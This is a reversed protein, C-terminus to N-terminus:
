SLTQYLQQIAEWREEPRMLSTPPTHSIFRGFLDEFWQSAAGLPEALVLRYVYAAQEHDGRDALILAWVALPYNPSSLLGRIETVITMASLIHSQAKELDGLRYAILAQLGIGQALEDLQDISRLYDTGIELYNATASNDERTAATMGLAILALGKSRKHGLERSLAVAKKAEEIAREYAGAHVSTYATLALLVTYGLHRIGLEEFLAGAEAYQGHADAFRGLELWGSGLNEMAGALAPRDGIQNFLDVAQELYHCSLALEGRHMLVLGLRDLSSAEGRRDGIRRRLALSEEFYKQAKDYAGVNWCVTGLQNLANAQGWEDNISEYLGLAQEGHVLAAKRDGTDLMLEEVTLHYLALVPRLAPSPPIGALLRQIDALFADVPRGLFYIFLLRWVQLHLLPLLVGPQEQYKSLAGAALAFLTEGDNLWNRLLCADGLPDIAGTLSVEEPHAAAWQVATWINARDARIEVLVKEQRASKLDFDRAAVFSCFFEAHQRRVQYETDPEAALKEAAYQRMLEHLTYRGNTHNLQVLYRGVLNSLTSLSIGAVSEAAQRAFGGSFVSLRAFAEREAEDLFQWTTDFVARISHHRAPRHSDEQALLDLNQAIIQVLDPLTLTEVWAAALELALPLGDTIRCLALLADGDDPAYDPLLRQADNLFLQVAPYENTDTSGALQPVQRGNRPYDLGQLPLLQEGPLRLRERSTVLLTLEPAAQHMQSLLDVNAMLHEFNDLVLLMEKQALYALLQTTANADVSLQLGLCEVIVAALDDDVTLDALSVFVAEQGVRQRDAAAALALRTKGIGGVGVVSVLWTEALLRRLVALETERGILPTPIEPLSSLTGPGVQSVETDVVRSGIRRNLHDVPRLGRACEIFIERQDEPIALADALSVALERSPRRQDTEIKKITVTSCYAREALERQTLGIIKRRRKLWEGFSYTKDM